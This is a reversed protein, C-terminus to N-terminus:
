RHRYFTVHGKGRPCYMCGTCDVQGKKRMEPCVISRVGYVNVFPQVTEPMEEGPDIALLFGLRVAAGADVATHVSAYTEIGVSRLFRVHPAIERWAHTYFWTPIRAGQRRAKRYARLTNAIYARDLTGDASLWDGGVHIRIARAGKRDLRIIERAMTEAWLAWQKSTLGFSEKGWKERVSTYRKQVKEAYCRLKAPMDVVAGVAGPLFPCNSPCSPGVPRSYSAIGEGLKKNTGLSLLSM